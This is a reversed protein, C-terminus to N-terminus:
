RAARDRAEFEDVLAELLAAEVRRPLDRSGPRYPEDGFIASLHRLRRAEARVEAYPDLIQQVQSSRRRRRM